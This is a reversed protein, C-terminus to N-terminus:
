TVHLFKRVVWTIPASTVLDFLFGQKLYQFSRLLWDVGVWGCVTKAIAPMSDSYLGSADYYGTFFQLIIELIFSTELALDM